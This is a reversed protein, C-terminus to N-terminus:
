RYLRDQAVAFKEGTEVTGDDNQDYEVGSGFQLNMEEDFRNQFFALQERFSDGEPRFTSLKSLIYVALARYCAARTWQSSTLRTADFVPQVVTNTRSRSQGFEQNFWRTKVITEVDGQAMALEASWDAVGHDMATPYYKVLDDNTAFPM